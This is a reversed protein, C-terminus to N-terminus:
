LTVYRKYDDSNWEDYKKCLTADPRQAYIMVQEPNIKKIHNMM